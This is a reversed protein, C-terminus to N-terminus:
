KAGFLQILFGQESKNILRSQSSLTLLDDNLKSFDIEEYDAPLFIMGARTIGLFNLAYRSSIVSSFVAMEWPDAPLGAELIDCLILEEPVMNKTLLLQASTGLTEINKGIEYIYIREDSFPALADNVKSVFDYWNEYGVPVSHAILISGAKSVVRLEGLTTRGSAPYKHQNESMALRIRLATIKNQEAESLARLFGPKSEFESLTWSFVVPRENSIDICEIYKKFNESPVLSPLGFSTIQDSKTFIPM